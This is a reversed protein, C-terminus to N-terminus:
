IAIKSTKVRVLRFNGKPRALKEVRLRNSSAGATVRVEVRVGAQLQTLKDVSKKNM